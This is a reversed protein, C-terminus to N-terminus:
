SFYKKWNGFYERIRNKRIERRCAKADRKVQKNHNLTDPRIKTLMMMKKYEGELLEFQYCHGATKYWNSIIQSEWPRQADDLFVHGGIPIRSHIMYLCAERGRLTSYPPGDILVIEASAPLQGNSIHYSLYPAKLFRQWKLPAFHLQTRNDSRLNLQERAYTIWQEDHEFSTIVAEPFEQLMRVTSGGSGFEVISQPHTNILRKTLQRFLSESLGWGADLNIQTDTKM